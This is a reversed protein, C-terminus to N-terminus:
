INKIFNSFRCLKNIHVLLHATQYVHQVARYQFKKHAKEETKINNSVITSNCQVRLAVVPVVLVNYKTTCWILRTKTRRM